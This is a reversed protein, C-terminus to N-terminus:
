VWAETKKWTHGGLECVNPLAGLLVCHPCFVPTSLREQVSVHECVSM